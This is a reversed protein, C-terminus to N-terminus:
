NEICGRFTSRKKSDRTHGVYNYVRDMGACKLIAPRMVSPLLRVNSLTPCTRNQLVLVQTGECTLNKILFAENVRQEYAHLSMWM